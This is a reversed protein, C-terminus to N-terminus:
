LGLGPCHEALALTATTFGESMVAKFGKDDGLEPHVVAVDLRYGRGISDAIAGSQEPTLDARISLAGGASVVPEADVGLEKQDGKIKYGLLMKTGKFYTLEDPKANMVTLVEIDLRNGNCTLYIATSTADPNTAVGTVVLKGASDLRAFWAASAESSILTAIITAALAIRRM